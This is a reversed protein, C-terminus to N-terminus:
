FTRGLRLFDYRDRSRVVIERTAAGRRITLPVEVGAEGLAWLTRYFGEMGDVPTGAVAVVVDREEVGAAEAPGDAVVSAVFVQGAFEATYLGLWPRPPRVARGRDLLDALIPKLADIPVFMNGPQGPAHGAVDRVFLSGIGLLRGDAGVLAAGGYGDHPPTTMIADELLYEWYGAFNRIAAVTVGTAPRSGGHGVVLARDDEVLTASTGLRLPRSGVAGEARLLGFGTEHDYALVAAPLTRGDATVIEASAAELILYGITLVLGDDDIVVGSGARDTGLSDATRADGPVLARVEVVADLIDSVSEAAATRACTVMAVILVVTLMVAAAIRALASGRPYLRTM